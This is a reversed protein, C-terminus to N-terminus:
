QKPRKFLVFTGSIGVYSAPPTGGGIVHPSAAVTKEVVPGVYEWGDAALTNYQETLAKAADADPLRGKAGDLSCAVVKYEWQQKQKEQGRAEPQSTVVLAGAFGIALGIALGAALKSNM